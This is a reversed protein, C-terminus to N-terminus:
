IVGDVSDNVITASAENQYVMQSSINQSRYINITSKNRDCFGGLCFEFNLHLQGIRGRWWDWGLIQEILHMSLNNNCHHSM